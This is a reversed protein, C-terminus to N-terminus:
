CRRSQRRRPGSAADHFSLRRDEAEGAISNRPFNIKGCEAIWGVGCGRDTEIQALDGDRRGPLGPNAHRPARNTPGKFHSNGFGGNGGEAITLKDGINLLEGIKTEEDEAYIETGPPVKIVMDDGHSGSRDQGMGGQGNKAFFHQQYRYDILTNLNDVCIIIVDGGRGGNGGNPGGYEIDKERRFSVCGNGGSGSRIYIKATDLFKM